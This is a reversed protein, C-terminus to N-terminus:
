RVLEILTEVGVGTAGKDMWPTPETLWATGAIDLHVWPYDVFQELFKAGATPGALRGSPINKMDAVSSKILDDYEKDMPLEWIKEGAEEAAKKVKEITKADNGMLGSAVNGLAAIVAGTLTALDVVMRPKYKKAYSLAEALIIRGEADTNQVEVTKGSYMTLIDGPKLASGSPMNEAAPVLGVVNVKLGLAAIAGVAGIVASGGAQDYKMEEMKEAPKISIGGSDFTLGKGCFVYPRDAVKGNRYEIIIFRPEENSGKGVGLLGGMKLNEIEKKGLVTIKIKKLGKKTALESAFNAMAAPTVIASPLDNVRRVMNVYEAIIEGEEAGASIKRNLKKDSILFKVEKIQSPLKNKDTIFESFNYAGCAVGQVIEKSLRDAGAARSILHEPFIVTFDSKKNKQVHRAASAAAKKLVPLSFDKKKGLGAVLVKQAKIKGFTPFSLIASASGDFEREKISRAVFGGFMKDIEKVPWLNDSFVFVVLAPTQIDAFKDQTITIKM